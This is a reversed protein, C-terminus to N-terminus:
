QIKVLTSPIGLQRYMAVIAENDDYAGAIVATRKLEQVQQQKLEWSRVYCCYPRMLLRRWRVGNRGLWEKTVAEYHAPRATTIVLEHETRLLGANVLSDFASLSHYAHYRELLDVIGTRVMKRRWRDDAITGDLDMLIIAM